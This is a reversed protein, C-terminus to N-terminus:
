GWFKFDPHEEMFPKVVEDIARQAVEKSVFLPTLIDPKDLTCVYFGCYDNNFYITYKKTLDNIGAGGNEYSFKMLKRNLLERLAQHEAFERDNYYNHCDFVDDDCSAFTEFSEDVNGEDDIYWYDQYKKGREFPNFPKKNTAKEVLELLKEKDSVSLNNLNLDLHLNNNNSM